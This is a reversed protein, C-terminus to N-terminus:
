KKVREDKIIKNCGHHHGDFLNGEIPVVVPSEALVLAQGVVLRGAVVVDVEVPTAFPALLDLEVARLGAILEVTATFAGGAPDVRDTPEALPTTM